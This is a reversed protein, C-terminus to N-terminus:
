CVFIFRENAIIVSDRSKLMHENKSNLKIENVFTGNISHNDKIFHVGDKEVIYAHNYNVLHNDIFLDSLKKDRGIYFIRKDIVFVNSSRLNILQPVGNEYTSIDFEDDQGVYSDNVEYIQNSIPVDIKVKINKRNINEVSTKKRISTASKAKKAKNNTLTILRSQEELLSELTNKIYLNFEKPYNFCYHYEYYNPVNNRKQNDLLEWGLTYDLFQQYCVPVESDKILHINNRLIEVMQMQNKIKYNNVYHSWIQQENEPLDDFSKDKIFIHQRGLQYLIRSFLVDEEVILAYIPGYLQSIQCDIQEKKWKLKELELEQDKQIKIKRKDQRDPIIWGFIIFILGLAGIVLEAVKFGIEYKDM